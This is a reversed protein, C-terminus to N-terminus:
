TPDGCRECLRQRQEDISVGVMGIQLANTGLTNIKYVLVNLETALKIMRREEMVRALEERLVDVRKRWRVEDPIYENHRLIRLAWWTLRANEDAPMPELELPQGMGPLNDFKGDKMAEDIRRDALRRFISEFDVDKLSM